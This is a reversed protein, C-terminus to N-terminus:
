RPATFKKVQHASSLNADFVLSMSSLSAEPRLTRAASARGAAAAEFWSFFVAGLVWLIKILQLKWDREPMM